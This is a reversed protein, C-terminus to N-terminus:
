CDLPGCTDCHHLCHGCDDCDGHEQECEVKHQGKATVGPRLGTEVLARHDGADAALVARLARMTCPCPSPMRPNHELEALRAVHRRVLELTADSM